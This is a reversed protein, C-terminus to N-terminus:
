RRTCIRRTATPSRRTTAAPNNLVQQEVEPTVQSPPQDSHSSSACGSAYALLAAFAFGTALSTRSPCRLAAKMFPM